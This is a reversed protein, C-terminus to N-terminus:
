ILKDIDILEFEYDQEIVEGHEERMENRTHLWDDFRNQDEVYGIIEGTEKYKVIKM